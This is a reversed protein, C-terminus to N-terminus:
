EGSDAESSPSSLPQRHPFLTNLLSTMQAQGYVKTPKAIATDAPGAGNTAPDSTAATNNAGESEDKVPDNADEQGNEPGGGSGSGSGSTSGNESGNGAGNVFGNGPESPTAGPQAPHPVQAAPETPVWGNQVGVTQRPGDPSVGNPTEPTPALALSNAPIARNPAIAPDVVTALSGICVRQGVYGQGVVVAGTGIIAGAALTLSGQRAQIVAGAGIVVGAEIRLCTDPEALLVVGAAIVATADVQVDGCHCYHTLSVLELATVSTL